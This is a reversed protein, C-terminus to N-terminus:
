EIWMMCTVFGVPTEGRMLRVLFMGSINREIENEGEEKSLTWTGCKALFILVPSVCITIAVV